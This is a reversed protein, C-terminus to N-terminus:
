AMRHGATLSTDAVDAACMLEPKCGPVLHSAFSVVISPRPTLATGRWNIASMPLSGPINGLDDDVFLGSVYDLKTLADVVQAADKKDDLYILDSGGNAVIRAGPFAELDRRLFDAPLRGKDMTSFGHDATVFVDTTKDLGK